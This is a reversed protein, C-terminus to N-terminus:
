LYLFAYTYDRIPFEKANLHEYLSPAEILAGINALSKLRNKTFSDGFLSVEGEQKKMNKKKGKKTERGMEAAALDFFPDDFGDPIEDDSFPQDGEEEGGNEASAEKKRAERKNKRKEKKKHLYKEFPTMADLEEQSKEKSAKGEDAFVVEMNGAAEEKKKDKTKLEGLLAKYKAIADQDAEDDEESGSAIQREHGEEGESESGLLGKADDDVDEEDSGAEFARQMAKAREPDTEDWTLEPRSLQLAGTVFSKSKLSSPMVDCHEAFINKMENGTKRFAQFSFNEGKLSDQEFDMDQPVFRLDFRSASLQTNLVLRRLWPELLFPNCSYQDSLQDFTDDSVTFISIGGADTILCFCLQVLPSM